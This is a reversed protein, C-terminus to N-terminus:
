PVEPARARREAEAAARGFALDVYVQALTDRTVNFITVLLGLVRALDEPDFSALARQCVAEELVNISVQVERIEYGADFRERAIRTAHEIAPEASCEALCREALDCLASLRQRIVEAGENEYHTLHANHLEALAREVLDDRWEVFLRRLDKM